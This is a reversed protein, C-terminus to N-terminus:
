SDEARARKVKRTVVKDKDLNVEGIYQAYEESDGFLKELLSNDHKTRSDKKIEVETEDVTFNQMGAERMNLFLQGRLTKIAVNHERNEAFVEKHIKMFTKKALIAEELERVVATIAEVENVIVNENENETEPKTEPASM